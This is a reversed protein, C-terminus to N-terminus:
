MKDLVKKVVTSLLKGDVSAGLEGKLSKMLLGMNPSDFTKVRDEVIVYLEQETLQKPLYDELIDIELTMVALKAEIVKGVSLRRAERLQKLQKVLAGESYDVGTKAGKAKSMKEAEAIVLGLISAKAKDSGTRAQLRDAKLEQLTIM